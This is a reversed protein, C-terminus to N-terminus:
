KGASLKLPKDSLFHMEVAQDLRRLGIVLVVRQVVLEPLGQQLDCLMLQSLGSLYYM